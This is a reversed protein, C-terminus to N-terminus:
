YVPFFRGLVMERKAGTVSPLNGPLNLQHWHALVAFAIAEKADANLGVQDTAMVSVDGLAESLLSLLFANRSGGGCVLVEDPFDPLYNRYEQAISQATFATLTALIDEESLGKQGAAFLCHQLYDRGFYERGTSKPPTEKFFSDQLWTQLLEPCITGTAAWQGNKDYSLKGQSFQEVALDILINGPGTDWGKVGEGLVAQKELAPLYTTNGMGGINQVCRSKTKHSLLCLDIRPVLPAGQGSASIDAMRFDSVTPIKTHQAIIDGRGLQISMGLSQSAPPRHFVTQGHSGIIEAKPFDAQIAIAAESFAIAIQDDLQAIADLSKPQGQAVEVISERLQASYEFTQSNLLDVTLDLDKGKIDVLVADIGDMSTGSMLGITIAM